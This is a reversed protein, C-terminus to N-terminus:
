VRTSSYNELRKKLYGRGFGTKLQLERKRADTKNLCAEYYVLLITDFIKTSKVKGSKHESIRNRLDETSGTYFKETNSAKNKCFLVYTYYM